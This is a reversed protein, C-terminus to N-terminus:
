VEIGSVVTAIREEIDFAGDGRDGGLHYFFEVTGHSGLMVSRDLGLVPVELSRFAACLDRLVEAYDSVSEFRGTRRAEVNATEFLPKVLCLLEGGPNLLELAIPVAEVLSLYSLDLTILTPMERMMDLDVEALNTRELNVVHPNNRLSGALQGFGVDVAYVTGAGHQVLCDTFGGTSAGADLAVRGAIEVGFSEIAGELKLGGRGVYRQRPHRLRIDSVVAVSEGAKGSPADDVIVEGALVLAEAEKRDDCLGREILLAWLPVKRTPSM